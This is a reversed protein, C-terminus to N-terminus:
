TPSPMPISVKVGVATVNGGPEAATVLRWAAPLALAALMIKIFDGFLFPLVGLTLAKELGFLIAMWGAGFAYIILTGVLFPILSTHVSRELGREALLGIVYAAGIFGIQYGLTPGELLGLLMVLNDVLHARVHTEFTPILRLYDDRTGDAMRTWGVSPQTETM